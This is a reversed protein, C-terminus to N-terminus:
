DAPKVEIDTILAGEVEAVRGYRSQVPKIWRIALDELALAIESLSRGSLVIDHTSFSIKLTELDM